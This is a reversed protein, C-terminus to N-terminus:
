QSVTLGSPPAPPVSPAPDTIPCVLGDIEPRTSTCPARGGAINQTAQEAYFVRFDDGAVQNHDYVFTEDRINPFCNGPSLDWDMVITRHTWDAMPHFRNGRMIVTRPSPTARTGPTCLAPISINARANRFYSNEIRITGDTATSVDIGVSLGQIDARRFTLDHAKYDGSSYGSGGDNSGLARSSGRVVFGDFTVHNIPYGYFAEEWLHWATFDRIVTERMAPATYGDTGLQWIVLGTPMLGYAENRVFEPIPVFKMDVLQYEFGQQGADVDAGRYLPIRTDAQSVVPWVFNYGSGAVIQQFHNVANAAVNDRLRHNFGSFWFISGDRGDGERPNVDGVIGVGFNHVFENYSESGNEAVYGAGQGDFIVNHQILGYQSSGHVTLPWKRSHVIANGILRFQYGTNSSNVPGMLHHIHLPYRGIHNSPGLAANTTRGLDRFEVYRIDVAARQTYVTHGRTGSANESRILVNRTLNGVHPLFNLVGAADRAGDHNFRLGTSLIAQTGSLQAITLEEWQPVINAFRENATLQRTDPLILRDGVRWGSVAQSLTLASQGSRPEQGLRVFTPTKPAGHMTVRGDIAVIGTGWQDPDTTLNLSKNAIVIEAAVQPEIPDQTTGVELAGNPMVLLTGVKLRTNQSSLFRLTGGADIGVTDAVGTTSDYTVAHSILVVDGSQPVRAPSWTSASSWAGSRTSQLTPNHAFNPITDHHTQFHPPGSAGEALASFVSPSLALSAIVLALFVRM